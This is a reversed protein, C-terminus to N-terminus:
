LNAGEDSAFRWRMMRRILAVVDNLDVPKVLFRDVGISQLKQWERPGGAATLVVIPINATDERARLVSTVQGADLKPMQLDLLAVSVPREAAADLAQAGDGVCVIEAQPFAMRLKIELADRFDADDEAVLIRSPEFMRKKADCLAQRFAGVSSTRQTPNKALADLLPRDFSKPLCKLVTSPVPVEAIAHQALLELDSPADVPLRGTLTEYAVCALSYVDAAPTIVGSKGQSFAIEPAM